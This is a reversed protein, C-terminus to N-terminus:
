NEADTGQLSLYFGNNGKEGQLSFGLSKEQNVTGYKLNVKGQLGEKILPSKTFIHIVGGIADSGYFVSSPSRLVEIKGIDEMNVFSASPGTRRDSTIRANDVMILVRRRALGRINPVISFGGSGTSSLGPLNQLGEAINPAMKEQIIETEIVSEAAPISTISEPHRLATVVIEERQRIYPILQISIKKTVDRKTLVVEKEIYDPHIIELRIKDSDPIELKFFGQSDTNTKQRSQRHFVLADPIPIGWRTIIEGKIEIALSYSILLFFFSFFVANKKILRETM